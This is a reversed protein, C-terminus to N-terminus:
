GNCIQRQLRRLFALNRRDAWRSDKPTEMVAAATALRGDALFAGFAGPGLRGRGLHTHQDRHSGRAHPTDNFHWLGVRELGVLAQARDLFRGAAAADELRYGAAFAHATDLCVGVDQERLRALLWSLQSLTGGMQGGGGATNELWCAAGPGARELAQAVGRAVRELGWALSRDGRSGPHVVVAQAGLAKARRLQGALGAVSRQWLEEQPSALNILYPAHVSVPHLGAQGAQRAFERALAEDLPRQSWSRPNGAFIQLCGLGLSRAVAVARLLGGAIPLHFGLRVISSRQGPRGAGPLM